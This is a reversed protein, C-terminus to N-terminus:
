WLNMVQGHYTCVQLVYSVHGKDVLVLM